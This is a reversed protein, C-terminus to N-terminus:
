RRRTSRRTRPSEPVTKKKVSAGQETDDVM